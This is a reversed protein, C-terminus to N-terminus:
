YVGNRANESAVGFELGLGSLAARGVTSAFAYAPRLGSLFARRGLMDRLLEETAVGIGAKIAKVLTDDVLRKDQYYVVGDINIAVIETGGDTTLVPPVVWEFEPRGPLVWNNFRRKAEGSAIGKSSIPKIEIWRIDAPNSVNYIDPLLWRNPDDLREVRKGELISLDDPHTVRYAERIVREAAYGLEQRADSYHGSPDIRTIPNGQTYLYRHLSLPDTSDGEYTDRTWFRGVSPQYYRARLYYMGLDPDWQEGTYRYNNSASGTSRNPGPTPMVLAHIPLSLAELEREPVEM